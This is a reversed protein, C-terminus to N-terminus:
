YRFMATYARSPADALHWKVQPVQRQLELIAHGCAASLCDEAPEIYIDRLSGCQQLLEASPGSRSLDIRESCSLDLSRIRPTNPLLSRWVSDTLENGAVSLFTLHSFCRRMM